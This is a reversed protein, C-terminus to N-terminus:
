KVIQSVNNIWKLTDSLSIIYKGFFVFFIISPSSIFFIKRYQFILVSNPSSNIVFHNWPCDQKLAWSLYSKIHGEAPVATFQVRRWDYQAIYCLWVVYYLIIPLPRLGGHANSCKWEVSHWRSSFDLNKYCSREEMCSSSVFLNLDLFIHKHLLENRVVSHLPIQIM